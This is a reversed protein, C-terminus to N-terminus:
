SDPPRLSATTNSGGASGARSLLILVTTPTPDVIQAAAARTSRAACTNPARGSSMQNEVHTAPASSPPTPQPM